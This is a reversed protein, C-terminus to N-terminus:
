ASRSLKMFLSLLPEESSKCQRVERQTASPLRPRTLSKVPWPALDLSSWLPQDGKYRAAVLPCLDQTLTSKSCVLASRESCLMSSGSVSM